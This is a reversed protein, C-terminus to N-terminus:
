FGCLESKIKGSNENMANEIKGQEVVQNNTLNELSKVLKKQDNQLNSNIQGFKERTQDIKQQLNKIRDDIKQFKKFSTDQKKTFGDVKSEIETNFKKSETHLKQEISRIKEAFNKTTYSLTEDILSDTTTVLQKFTSLDGKLDILEQKIDLKLKNIAVKTDSINNKSLAISHELTSTRSNTFDIKEQFKNSLEQIELFIKQSYFQDIKEPIRTSEFLHLRKEYQNLRLNLRSDIASNIDSITPNPVNISDNKSITAFTLVFLVM